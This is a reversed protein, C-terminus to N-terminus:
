LWGEERLYKEILPHLTYRLPRRPDDRYALICQAQLLEDGLAGAPLVRCRDRWFEFLAELEPKRHLTENVMSSQVANIAVEVAAVSIRQTDTYEAELVAERILVMLQRINGGSAEILRDLLNPDFVAEEQLGCLALRRQVLRRLFARGDVDAPGVSVNPVIVAEFFDNLTNFEPEAYLILPATLILRVDPRAMDLSRQFLTKADSVSVRDLGDIIVVVPRGLQTEVDRRFGKFREAAREIQPPRERVLRRTEAERAGSGELGQLLVNAALAVGGAAIFIPSATAAGATLLATGAEALPKELLIRSVVDGLTQLVKDVRASLQTESVREQTETDLCASLFAQFLRRDPAGGSKIAGEYLAMAMVVFLKLPDRLVEASLGIADVWVVLHTQGLTYAVWTLDMSKGAGRQGVIVIKARETLDPQMKRVLDKLPRADPRQVHALLANIGPGQENPSASISWYPTCVNYVCTWPNQNMFTEM